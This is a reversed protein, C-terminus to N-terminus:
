DLFQIRPKPNKMSGHYRIPIPKILPSLDTKTDSDTTTENKECLEDNNTSLFSQYNKPMNVISQNYKPLLELHDASVKTLQKYEKTSLSSSLSSNPLTQHTNLSFSTLPLTQSRSLSTKPQTKTTMSEVLVSNVRNMLNPTLLPTQTSSSPSRKKKHEKYTQIVQLVIIFIITGIYFIFISITVYVLSFYEPDDEAKIVCIIAITALILNILGLIYLSHQVVMKRIHQYFLSLTYLRTNFANITISSTNSLYSLPKPTAIEISLSRRPHIFHMENRTNGQKPLLKKDKIYKYAVENRAAISGADFILYVSDCSSSFFSRTLGKKATESDTEWAYYM